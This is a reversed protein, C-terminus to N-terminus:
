EKESLEKMQRLWDTWDIPGKTFREQLNNLVTKWASSFYEFSKDWEGGEGWGSHHLRVVTSDGKPEFRLVVSTRQKRAEPLSPPPM